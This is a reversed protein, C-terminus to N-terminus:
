SEVAARWTCPNHHCIGCPAGTELELIVAEISDPGFSISVDGRRGKVVIETYEGSRRQRGQRATAMMRDMTRNTAENTDFTTSM